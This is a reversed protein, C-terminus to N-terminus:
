TARVFPNEGRQYAEGLGRIRTESARWGRVQAVGLIDDGARVEITLVINLFLLGIAGVLDDAGEMVSVFGPNM